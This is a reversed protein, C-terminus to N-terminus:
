AHPLEKFLEITPESSQHEIMRSTRFGARAYAARAKMNGKRVRLMLRNAGQEHALQVISQLVGQSIAPNPPAPDRMGQWRTSIGFVLIILDSGSLRLAALAVDPDEAFGFQLVTTATSSTIWSVQRFYRNVERAYGSSGCNFGTVFPDTPDAYRYKLSGSLASGVWM